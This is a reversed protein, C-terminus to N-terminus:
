GHHFSVKKPPYSDTPMYTRLSIRMLVVSGARLKDYEHWPATLKGEVDVINRQVLKAQHLNFLPGGYDSLLNQNNDSEIQEDNICISNLVTLQYDFLYALDRPADTPVKLMFVDKARTTDNILNFKLVMESGTNQEYRAMINDCRQAVHDYVTLRSARFPM